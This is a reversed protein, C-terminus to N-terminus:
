VSRVQSILKDISNVVIKADKKGFSLWLDYDAQNRKDRFQKFNMGLTKFGLGILTDPYIKHLNWKRLFKPDLRNLLYIQSAHIRKKRKLNKILDLSYKKKLKLETEHFLSYYARSIASRSEEEPISKKSLIRNAFALFKDGTIL